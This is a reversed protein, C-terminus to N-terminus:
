YKNTKDLLEALMKLGASVASSRVTDRDGDFNFREVRCDAGACAGLYVTGVPLGPEAGGPGAIGSVAIAAEVDYRQRLGELMAQVTEASVVGYQGIVEAPVGLLREKWPISYTVLAGAFWGSAGPLATLEAAIMGGTCSEATAMMWKRAQLSEAIAAAPTSNQM